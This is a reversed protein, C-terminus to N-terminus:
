PHNYIRSLKIIGLRNQNGLPNSFFYATRKCYRPLYFYGCNPFEASHGRFGCSILKVGQCGKIQRTDNLQNFISISRGSPLHISKVFFSRMSNTALFAFRVLLAALSDTPAKNFATRSAKFLPSFTTMVPNPVKLTRFLASRRPRFGFVPSCIVIWARLAGPKVGPLVRLFATLYIRRLPFFFNALIQHAEKQYLEM